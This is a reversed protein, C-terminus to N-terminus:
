ELSALVERAEKLPAEIECQEFLDIAKLICERAQDKRQMAIHLRGLDLTADGLLGKAGIEQAIEIAKNLHDAANGAVALADESEGLAAQLYVRGILHETFGYLPKRGARLLKRATDELQSMGGALDGRFISVAGLVLEAYAAEAEMGLLGGSRM